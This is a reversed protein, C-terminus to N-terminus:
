EYRELYRSYIVPYKKMHATMAALHQKKIRSQHYKLNEKKGQTQSKTHYAKIGAQQHEEYKDFFEVALHHIDLFEFISSLSEKPKAIIDEYYVLLKDGQKGDFQQLIKVYDVEPNHRGQTQWYFFDMLGRKKQEKQHRPIAEKYDRVVLILRKDSVSQVNHSKYLIPDASLDVGIDMRSGIPNDGKSEPYVSPRGSIYEVCYRVWTNGSRPYTLLVNM